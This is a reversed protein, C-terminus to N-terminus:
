PLRRRRIMAVGGVALLALTAPEPIVQLEADASTTIAYSSTDYFDAVALTDLPGTYGDPWDSASVGTALDFYFWYEEGIEAEFTLTDAYSVTCTEDETTAANELMDVADLTYYVGDDGHISTWYVEGQAGLIGTEDSKRIIAILTEVHAETEMGVLNGGENAQLIGDISVDMNVTFSEGPSITDSAFTFPTFTEVDAGCALGGGYDNNTDRHTVRCWAKNRGQTDALIEGKAHAEITNNDPIWGFPCTSDAEALDPALMEDEAGPVTARAWAYQFDGGGPGLGQTDAKATVAVVCVVIPLMTACIVRGVWFRDTQMKLDEKQPNWGDRHVVSFYGSLLSEM